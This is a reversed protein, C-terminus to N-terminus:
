RPNEKRIIITPSINPFRIRADTAFFCLKMLTVELKLETDEGEAKKVIGFYDGYICMRDNNPNSEKM